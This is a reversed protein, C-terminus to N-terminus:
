KIFDTYKLLIKVMLYMLLMIVGTKVLEYILIGIPYKGIKVQRIQEMDPKGDKNLDVSFIPDLISATFASMLERLRDGMVWTIVAAFITYKVIFSKFDIVKVSKIAM